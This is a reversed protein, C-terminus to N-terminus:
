ASHFEKVIVCRRPRLELPGAYCYARCEVPAGFLGQARGDHCALDRAAVAGVAARVGL